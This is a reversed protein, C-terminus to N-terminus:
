RDTIASTLRQTMVRGRLDKWELHVTPVLPNAGPDADEYTVSVKSDRLQVPGPQEWGDEYRDLISTQFNNPDDPTSPNADRLNRMDSITSLCQNVAVVRQNQMDLTVYFSVLGQAAVGMTIAFIAIAMTLELLTVGSTSKGRM